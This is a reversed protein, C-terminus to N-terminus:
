AVMGTWAVVTEWKSWLQAESQDAQKWELSSDVYHEAQIQWIIFSMIFLKGGNRGWYNGGENFGKLSKGLNKVYFFLLFFM